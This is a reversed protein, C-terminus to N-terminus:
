KWEIKIYNWVCVDGFPTFRACPAQDLYCLFTCFWSETNQPFIKALYRSRIKLDYIIIYEWMIFGYWKSSFYPFFFLKLAYMTLVTLCLKLSSKPSVACAPSELHLFVQFYKFKCPCCWLYQWIAKFPEFLESIGFFSGSALLVFSSFNQHHLFTLQDIERLRNCCLPSAASRCIRLKM